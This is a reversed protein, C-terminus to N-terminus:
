EYSFRWNKRFFFSDLGDHEQLNADQMQVTVVEPVGSFPLTQLVEVVDFSNPTHTFEFAEPLVIQSFKAGKIYNRVYRSNKSVMCDGYIEVVKDKFRSKIMECGKLFDEDQLDAIHDATSFGLLMGISSDLKYGSVLVM